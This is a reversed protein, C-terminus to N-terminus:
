FLFFFIKLKLLKIVPFYLSILYFLHASRDIWEVRDRQEQFWAKKVFLLSGKWTFLYPYVNIYSIFIYHAKQILFVDNMHIDDQSPPWHAYYISKIYVSPSVTCSFTNKKFSYSTNIFNFLVMCYNNIKTKNRLENKNLSFNNSVSVLIIKTLTGAHFLFNFRM